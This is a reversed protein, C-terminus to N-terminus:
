YRTRDTKEFDVYAMSQPFFVTSECKHKNEYEEMHRIEFPM